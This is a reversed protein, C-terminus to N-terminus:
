YHSARRNGSRTLGQHYAYVILQMRNSVELKGFISTLHHSVTAQSILLREAIQSTKLGETILNIVERERLTLRAIKTTEPDKKRNRLESLVDTLLGATASRELWTEGAYVKEMASILIRSVEQKFVLGRAGLSIAEIHLNPDKAGTLIIVHADKAAALLDGIIAHTIDGDPAPDLVVIDPQRRVAIDLAEDCTGTDGVIEFKPYNNIILRLGERVMAHEDILLIRIPMEVSPPLSADTESRMQGGDNRGRDHEPSSSLASLSARELYSIAYRSRTKRLAVNRM